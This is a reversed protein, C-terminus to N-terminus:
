RPLDTEPEVVRCVDSGCVNCKGRLILSRQQMIATELVISISTKCKGCFVNELIRIQAQRPIKNWREEAEGSFSGTPQFPIINNKDM